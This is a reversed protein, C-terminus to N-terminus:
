IQGLEEQESTESGACSIGIEELVESLPGPDSMQEETRTFRSTHIEAM